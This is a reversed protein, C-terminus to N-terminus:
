KWAAQGGMVKYDYNLEEGAEIRRKAYIGIRKRGDLVIIKTYCNPECSHNIFRAPGGRRTADVVVRHMYPILNLNLNSDPHLM